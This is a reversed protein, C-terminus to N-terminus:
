STPQTGQSTLPTGIDSCSEGGDIVVDHGTMFSSTEESCLLVMLRGIELPNAFRDVPTAAKWKAPWEAGEGPPPHNIM